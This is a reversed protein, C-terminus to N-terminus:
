SCNRVIPISIAAVPNDNAESREMQIFFGELLDQPIRPTTAM